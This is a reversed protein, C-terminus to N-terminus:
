SKLREEESKTTDKIIADWEKMQTMAAATTADNYARQVATERLIKNYEKQADGADKISKALEGAAKAADKFDGQFVMKIIEGMGKLSNVFTDIMASIGAIQDSIWETIPKFKSLAAVMLGMLLVIATV